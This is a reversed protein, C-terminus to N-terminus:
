HASLHKELRKYIKNLRHCIASKSVGELQAIQSISMDQIYIRHLLIKQQTLLTVIASKLAHSDARKITEDEISITRGTLTAWKDNKDSYSEHRRTQTHNNNRHLLDEGKLILPWLQASDPRSGSAIMDDVNLTTKSGDNFCYTFDEIDSAKFTTARGGACYTARGDKFLRLTIGKDKFEYIMEKDEGHRLDPLSVFHFKPM